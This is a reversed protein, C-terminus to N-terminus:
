QILFDDLCLRAAPIGDVALKFRVPGTLNLGSCTATNLGNSSATV